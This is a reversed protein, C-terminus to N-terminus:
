YVSVSLDTELELLTVHLIMFCMKIKGFSILVHRLYILLTLMLLM